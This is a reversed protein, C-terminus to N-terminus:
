IKKLKIIATTPCHEAVTIQKVAGQEGSLSIVKLRKTGKDHKLTVKYIEIKM